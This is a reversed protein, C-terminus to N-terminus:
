RAKSAALVTAYVISGDEDMKCPIPEELYIGNEVAIPDHSQTVCTPAGVYEYHRYVDLGYATRVGNSNGVQRSQLLTKAWGEDTMGEIVRYRRGAYIASANVDSLGTAIAMPGDTNAEPVSANLGTSSPARAVASMLAVLLAFGVLAILIPAVRGRV